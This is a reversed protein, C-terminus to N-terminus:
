NSEGYDVVVKIGGEIETNNNVNDTFLAYRRGMLEAARTRDSISPKKDVKIQYGNGDGQFVEEVEEGRIVSTLYQQIEIADAITEDQIEKQKQQIYEAIYPKTLNESAIARASSESYGANIASQTANGTKIYEDCFRQQKATLKTMDGGVKLREIQDYTIIGENYLYDEELELVERITEKDLDIHKSIFNVMAEFNLEPVTDTFDKLTTDSIHKNDKHTKM